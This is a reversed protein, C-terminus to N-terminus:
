GKTTKFFDAMARLLLPRVLNSSRGFRKVSELIRPEKVIEALESFEIEDVTAGFDLELQTLEQRASLLKDEAQRRQLAARAEHESRQRDTGRQVLKPDLPPFCAGLDSPLGGSPSQPRTTTLAFKLAGPPRQFGESHERWWKVLTRVDSPRLGNQRCASATSEWLIIGSERIQLEASKWDDEIEPREGTKRWDM